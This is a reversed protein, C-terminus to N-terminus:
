SPGPGRDRSFPRPALHATAGAHTRLGDDLCVALAACAEATLRVTVAGITLHFTGCSCRELQGAPTAALLERVCPPM